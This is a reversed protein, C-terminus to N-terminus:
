EDIWEDLKAYYSVPLNLIKSVKDAVSNDPNIVEASSAFRSWHQYLDLLDCDSETLGVGWFM